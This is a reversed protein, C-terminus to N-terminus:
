RTLKSLPFVDCCITHILDHCSTWLSFKLLFVGTDRIWSWEPTHIIHKVSFTGKGEASVAAEWQACSSVAGGYFAIFCLFLCDATHTTASFFFGWQQQQIPPLSVFTWWLWSIPFNKFVAMKHSWSTSVNFLIQNRKQSKRAKETRKFLKKRSTM